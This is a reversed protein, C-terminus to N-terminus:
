FPLLGILTELSLMLNRYCTDKDTSYIVTFLVNLMWQFIVDPFPHQLVPLEANLHGTPTDFDRCSKL